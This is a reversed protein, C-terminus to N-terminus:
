NMDYRAMLAQMTGDKQMSVVAQRYAESVEKPLTASAVICIPVSHVVDGFVVPADLGLEDWVRQMLSETLLWADVRGAALMKASSQPSTTRTVNDFEMRSLITDSTTGGELVVSSLARAEDLTNVPVSLSAFRLDARQIEVVWHFDEDRPKGHFLSPMMAAPETQLAYIARKFPLFTIEFERGARSAAERLVEVAFGPREPSNEIMLPPYHAAVVRDAAVAQSVGFVTFLGAFLIVHRLM